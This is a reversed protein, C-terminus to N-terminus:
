IFVESPEKVDFRINEGDFARAYHVAYLGSNVSRFPNTFDYLYSSSSAVAPIFFSCIVISFQRNADQGMTLQTISVGDELNLLGVLL